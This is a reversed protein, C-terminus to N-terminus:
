LEDIEKNYFYHINENNKIVEKHHKYKLSKKFMKAFRVYLKVRSIEDSKASFKVFDGSTIFKKEQQIAKMVASFIKIADGQDSIDFRGSENEFSIEVYEKDIHFNKKKIFQILYEDGNDSDFEASRYDAHKTGFNINYSSDFLENLYNKFNM